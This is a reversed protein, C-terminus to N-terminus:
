FCVGIVGKGLYVYISEDKDPSTNNELNFGVNTFYNNFGNAITKNESIQKSNSVFYTPYEPANFQKNIITNLIKWTCNVNTAERAVRQLLKKESCRLVSTPKSQLAEKEKCFCTKTWQHAM